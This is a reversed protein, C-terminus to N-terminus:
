HTRARSQRDWPPPAPPTETGQRLSEVPSSPVSASPSGPDSVVQRSREVAERFAPTELPGDQIRRPQADLRGVSVLCVVMWLAARM